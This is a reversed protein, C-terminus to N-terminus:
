KPIKVRKKQGLYPDIVQGTETWQRFDSVQDTEASRNRDLDPTVSRIQGQGWDSGQNQGLDCSM